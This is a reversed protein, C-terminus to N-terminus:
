PIQRSDHLEFGEAHEIITKNKYRLPMRNKLKKLFEESGVALSETWKPERHICKSKIKKEIMEEYTDILGGRDKVRLLKILYPFDIISYREKQAIMENYGSHPWESPHKVVGARLMNLDIYIMCQWLHSDSEVATAHYRDEWFAGKRSKRRNYEWATRGATLNMSESIFSKKLDDHVLLHIHNSTVIYNLIHIKYRKKAQFLWYLWRKRDRVFKLLFKRNHCRQTIHWILNSMYHRNARAM